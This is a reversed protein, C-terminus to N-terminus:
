TGDMALYAEAGAVQWNESPVGARRQLFEGIKLRANRNRIMSCIMFALCAEYAGEVIIDETQSGTGPGTRCEMEEASAAM